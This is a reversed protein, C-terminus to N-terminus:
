AYAVSNAADNGLGLSQGIPAITNVQIPTAGTYTYGTTTATLFRMRM